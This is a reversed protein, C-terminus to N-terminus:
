FNETIKKADYERPKERCLDISVRIEVELETVGGKMHAPTLPFKNGLSNTTRSSKGSSFKNRASCVGQAFSKELGHIEEGGPSNKRQKTAM